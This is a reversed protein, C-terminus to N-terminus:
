AGGLLSCPESQTHEVSIRFSAADPSSASGCLLTLVCSSSVRVGLLLDWAVEWDPEVLPISRDSDPRLRGPLSLLLELLPWKVALDGTSEGCDSPGVPGASGSRSAGAPGESDPGHRRKLAPRHPCACSSLAVTKESTWINPLLLANLERFWLLCVEVEVQAPLNRLLAGRLAALQVTGDVDVVAGKLLQLLLQYM